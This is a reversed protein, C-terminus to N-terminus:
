GGVTVGPLIQGRKADFGTPGATARETERVLFRSIWRGVLMGDLYVDGKAPDADQRQKIPAGARSLAAQPSTLTVTSHLTTGGRPWSTKDPQGDAVRGLGPTSQAEDASENQSQAFRPQVFSREPMLGASDGLSLYPATTGYQAERGDENRPISGAGSYDQGAFQKLPVPAPIGVSASDDPFFNRRWRSKAQLYVDSPADPGGAYRLNESAPIISAVSSAIVPVQPETAAFGPANTVDGLPKSVLSQLALNVRGPGAPSNASSQLEPSLFDPSVLGDGAEAPAFVPALSLGIRDSTFARSKGAVLEDSGPQLEAGRRRMSMPEQRPESVNISTTREGVERLSRISVGVKDIAKELRAVDRQARQMSASVGDRLALSVGIEFAEIM